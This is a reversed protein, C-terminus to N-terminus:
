AREKFFYVVKKDDVVSIFVNHVSFNSEGDAEKRVKIKKAGHGNSRMNTM